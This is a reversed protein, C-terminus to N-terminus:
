SMLGRGKGEGKQEEKMLHLRFNFDIRGEEEHIRKFYDSCM